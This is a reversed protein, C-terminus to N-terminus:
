LLRFDDWLPIPQLLEQHYYQEFLQFPIDQHLYKTFDSRKEYNESKEKLFDEAKKTTVQYNGGRLDHESLEVHTEYDLQQNHFYYFREKEKEKEKEKEDYEIIAFDSISHFYEKVIENRVTKLKIPSKPKQQLVMRKIGIDNEESKKIVNIISEHFEYKKGQYKGKTIYQIEVLPKFSDIDDFLRYIHFKRNEGWFENELLKYQVFDVNSLTNSIAKKIYKNSLCKRYYKYYTLNQVDKKNERIKEKKKKQLELKEEAEKERKKKEIQEITENESKELIEDLKLINSVFFEREYEYTLNIGCPNLRIIKDKFDLFLNKNKFYQCSVWKNLKRLFNQIKHNTGYSNLYSDIKDFDFNQINNITEQSHFDTFDLVLFSKYNLSSHAKYRSDMEHISVTLTHQFEIAINQVVSDIRYTNNHHKVTIEYTKNGTKEIGYKSEIKSFQWDSHWFSMDNDKKELNDTPKSKRRFHSSQRSNEAHIVSVFIVNGPLIFWTRFRPIEKSIDNTKIKVQKM